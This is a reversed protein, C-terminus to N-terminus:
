LRLPDKRLAMSSIVTLVRAITAWAWSACRPLAIAISSDNKSFCVEEPELAAAM